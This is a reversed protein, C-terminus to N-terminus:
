IAESHELRAKVENPSLRKLDALLQAVETKSEQGAQTAAIVLTMDAITPHNFLVTLPMEVKFADWIRSALQTVSLSHGGMEFFSDYIGIQKVGLIQQWILALEQEVSTRPAVYFRQLESSGEGPAPLGSRDIKGTPLRPLAKLAVFASPIMSEPLHESLYDRIVGSQVSEDAVIYACLYKQGAPDERDIVLADRIGKYHFLLNEIEHLEIRVGRIKVQMDKRGLLELNGDPLLRGLDGTKYVIDDSDNSFPSQIFVEKTLDPRNYYGLSRFPTRIYVEGASGPECLTGDNGVILASAGEMPKGVPILPRDLDSRGVFYFFKALTTETPGYVNVLQIREGFVNMWKRVDSPPLPEGALLIHKLSSFYDSNLNENVISRFLFPVCHILNIQQIDIWDILKRTHLIADKGDPICLVGGACLPVFIDRLFPDFVPSTFQSVRTEEGVGFTKIEWRIFHDLGKSRGLIAKPRGTSGSTFYIYVPDDPGSCTLPRMTNCFSLYDRAYSLGNQCDDAMEGDLCIACAKSGAISAIKSTKSYLTSQTIFWKPSIETVMSQLRKEPLEPDLPVSVCCAKLVGLMATIVAVTDEVMIAVISGALAGNEILFNAIKNSGAELDEYSIQKGNTEIAANSSYRQAARSFMETIGEYEIMHNDGKRRDEISAM